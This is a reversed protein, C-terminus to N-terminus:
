RGQLILEAARGGIMITPANTPGSPITPMVSADAVRLGRLGHVRLQPDVVADADTGMRATGIAHGFSAAGTRALDELDKRTKAGPGPIM